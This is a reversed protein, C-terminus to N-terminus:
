AQKWFHKYVRTEDQHLELFHFLEKETPLGKRVGFFQIKHSAIANATRLIADISKNKLISYLFGGSFADGAGTTNKVDVNFTECFLVDDKYRAYSGNGGDTISIVTEDQLINNNKDIHDYMINLLEYSKNKDFIALAEDKNISLYDSKKMLNMTKEKNFSIMTISPAFMLKTDADHAIKIADEIAKLSIDSTFSTIDLWKSKEILQNVNDNNIDDPTLTDSAGHYVLISRDRDGWTTSLIISIGTETQDTKIIGSTNVNFRKLTNIQKKGFQDDGVKSITVVKLGLQGLTCATNLASGGSVSKIKEIPIKYSYPICLYSDREIDSELTMQKLASTRIILDNVSSGLCCCDFNKEKQSM